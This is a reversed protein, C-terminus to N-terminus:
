SGSVQSLSSPFPLRICCLDYRRQLCTVVLLLGSIASVSRLYPILEQKNGTKVVHNVIRGAQIMLIPHHFDQNGTQVFRVKKKEDPHLGFAFDNNWFNLAITLLIGVLLVAHNGYPRATKFLQKM